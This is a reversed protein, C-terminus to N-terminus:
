RAAADRERFLNCQLTGDFHRMRSAKHCLSNRTQRVAFIGDNSPDNEQLRDRDTLATRGSFALGFADM